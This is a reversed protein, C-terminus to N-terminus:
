RRRRCRRPRSTSSSSAPAPFCCARCSSWSSCASRCRVWGPRPISTSASAPSSGDAGRQEDAGLRRHRDRTLPQQGLFVNEAVTLDPSSRCNRTCWASARPWRRARRASIAGRTGDIRMEGDITPSPRRCHNEDHDIQRRRKRRCPRSDRRGRAHFRCGAAGRHRRIIELRRYNSCPRCAAGARRKRETADVPSLDPLEEAALSPWAGNGQHHGTRRGPHYNPIDTGAKEGGQGGCCWRGGVLWPYPLIPQARHGAHRRRAGREGGAAHRRRRRHHHRDRGKQKMVQHAALAM